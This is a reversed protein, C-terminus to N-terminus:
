KIILYSIAIGLVLAITLVIVIFGINSFGSSNVQQNPKVLRRVLQNSKSPAEINEYTRDIPKIGSTHVNDQALAVERDLSVVKQNRQYNEKLKEYEIDQIYDIGDRMLKMDLWDIFKRDTDNQKVMNIVYHLNKNKSKLRTYIENTIPQIKQTMLDNFKKDDNESAAQELELPSIVPLVYIGSSNVSNILQSIKRIEMIIEEKPLSNLDKETFGIFLQYNDNDLDSICMYYGNNAYVTYSDLSFKIFEEGM